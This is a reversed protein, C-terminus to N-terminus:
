LPWRIPIKWRMREGKDTVSHELLALMLRAAGTILAALPPFCYEGTKDPHRVMCSFPKRDIGHCNIRVPKESEERNMEAYIGYSAANALVKLAKNLREKEIPALDTRSGLLKRQEIVVKFFDQKAPDM